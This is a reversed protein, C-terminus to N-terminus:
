IFGSVERGPFPWCIFFVDACPLRQRNRVKYLLAVHSVLRAGRGHTMGHMM